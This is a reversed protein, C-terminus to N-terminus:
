DSTMLVYSNAALSPYLYFMLLVCALFQHSHCDFAHGACAARDDVICTTSKVSKINVMEVQGHVYHQSAEHGPEGEGEGENQQQASHQDIFAAAGASVHMPGESSGDLLLGEAGMMPLLPPASTSRQIPVHALANSSMALSSAAHSAPPDASLADTEGHSGSGTGLAAHMAVRSQAHVPQPSVVAGPSPDQSSSSASDDKNNGNPEAQASASASVSASSAMMRSQQQQPQSM